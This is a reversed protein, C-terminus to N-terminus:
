VLKCLKSKLGGGAGGATGAAAEARNPEEGKSAEAAHQTWATTLSIAILTTVAGITAAPAIM